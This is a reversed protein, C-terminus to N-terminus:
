KADTERGRETGEEYPCKSFCSFDRTSAGSIEEKLERKTPVNASVQIESM